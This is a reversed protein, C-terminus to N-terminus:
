WRWKRNWWRNTVEQNDWFRPRICISWFMVASVGYTL